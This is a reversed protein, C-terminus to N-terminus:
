WVYCVIEGGIGQHYADRETMVGHSTSVVALGLGGLVRPLKKARRYVRQGSKSVRVIQTIAQRHKAYKLYVRLMRDAPREGIPKYTRIFGEQRLVGLIQEVIRSARVDVTPHKARSAIRIKTLGDAIPDYSAM